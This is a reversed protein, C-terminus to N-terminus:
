NMRQIMDNFREREENTMQEKYRKHGELSIQEEMKEKEAKSFNNRILESWVRLEKEACDIYDDSKMLEIKEKTSEIFNGDLGVKKAQDILRMNNEIHNERKDIQNKFYDSFTIVLGEVLLEEFVQEKDQLYEIRNRLYNLHKADYDGKKFDESGLKLLGISVLGSLNTNRAEGIQIDWDELTSILREIFIM